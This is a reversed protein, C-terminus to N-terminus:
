NGELLKLLQLNIAIKPKLKSGDPRIAESEDEPKRKSKPVYGTEEKFLNLYYIKNDSNLEQEHNLPNNELRSNVYVFSIKEYKHGVHAIIDDVKGVAKEHTNQSMDAKDLSSSWNKVDICILHKNIEIYSDFLEYARFSINSVVEDPSMAVINLEQLLQSFLYEGMNGKLIPIFKPHPAENVFADKAIDHSKKVMSTVIDNQSFNMKRSYDLVVMDKPKYLSDGNTIDTLISADKDSRCLKLSQREGSLDIYLRDLMSGIYSDNKVLPNTKLREIYDRPANISKINRLAENFAIADYNGERALQLTEPIFDDFFESLIEGSEIIDQEFVKREQESKFGSEYSRQQCLKMFRYNLLSMSELMSNNASDRQLRSFQVSAIDAIDSPLFIETKMQADKREVRGIAQMVIKLLALAHEHMLFRYDSGHVLNIDFDKLKKVERSDSTKKMLSLCNALSYLTREGSKSDKIIDSWFPSNILVLREFDVEFKTNNKDPYRIFYNLGTGAGRYTSVFVIKLNTRNVYVEERVNCERNLAADFLIVRITSKNQFPTIEFIRGKDEIKKFGGIPKFTQGNIIEKAYKRLATMFQSSLALSLTHKDEYATLLLAILQREFEITKYQDKNYVGYQHTFLIKRWRSFVQKFDPSEEIIISPSTEPFVQFDVSRLKKRSERLNALISADSDSRALMNIALNEDSSLCYKKLFHRNYQGSINDNIGSTASLAIVSNKTNHLLRLLSVEPQEKILDLTFNVYTLNELSGDNFELEKQQQVSFVTKPQFYTFFHNILLEENKTGREFMHEIESAISCAKNIFKYLLYNQSNDGCQKLSKLFQSNSKIKTAAALISMTVQYIDYLSPNKDEEITTYYLQCAGEGYAMKLRIKKLEEQNFYRKPTFCFVNRTLNIVQEVDGRKIQIFDINGVFPNLVSQLNQNSSLECEKHLNSKIDDIFDSKDKYFPAEKGEEDDMVTVQSYIRHIVAFVHALQIEPTILTVNASASFINYAEHVEDIVLTFSINKQRFYNAEDIAFFDQKLFALQEAHSKDAFAGTHNEKLHKKGGLICDFPLSKPYYRGDSNKLPLKINKDFKHTTALLICPKVMAIAFPLCHTIIERRLLDVGKTAKVIEHLNVPDDNRNLAAFSLKFLSEEFDRNQEKLQKDLDGLSNFGENPNTKEQEIRRHLSKITNIIQELRFSGRELTKYKKGKTIWQTYRKLNIIKKGDANPLWSEFDLKTIDEQSLFYVFEINKEHAKKVLSEDFEFQSKQPTIFCMNNFGNEYSVNLSISDIYKKLVGYSKGFGTGDSSQILAPKDIVTTDYLKSAQGRYHNIAKMIEDSPRISDVFDDIPRLEALPEPLKSPMYEKDSSFIILDRLYLEKKINLPRRKFEEAFYECVQNVTQGENFLLKATTELIESHEKNLTRYPISISFNECSFHSDQRYFIGDRLSNKKTKFFKMNALQYLIAKGNVDKDGFRKTIVQISESKDTVEGEMVIDEEYNDAIILLKEKSLEDWKM